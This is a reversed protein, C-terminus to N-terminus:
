IPDISDRRGPYTNKVYQINKKLLDFAKLQYCGHHWLIFIHNKVDFNYKEKEILLIKLSFNHKDNTINHSIIKELSKM